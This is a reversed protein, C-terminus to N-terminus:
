SSDDSELADFTRDIMKEAWQKVANRNGKLYVVPVDGPSPRREPHLAFSIMVYPGPIGDPVDGTSPIKTALFITM